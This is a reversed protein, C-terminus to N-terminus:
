CFSPVPVVVIRFVGTGASDLLDSRARRHEADGATAGAAPYVGHHLAAGLQPSIDHMFDTLGDKHAAPPLGKRDVSFIAALRKGCLHGLEAFIRQNADSGEACFFAVQKFRDCYQSVYARVAPAMGLHSAPAGIIVLDYKAPNRQPHRILSEAGVLTLWGIRWRAWLSTDSQAERIAELDAGCRRAIEKAMRGTHGNRSSYIVLIKMGQQKAYPRM